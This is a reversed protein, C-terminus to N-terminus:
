MVDLLRQCVCLKLLISSWSALGGLDLEVGYVMASRRLINYPRTHHFFSSLDDERVKRLIM